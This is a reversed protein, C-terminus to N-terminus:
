HNVRYFTYCLDEPSDHFHVGQIMAFCYDEVSMESNDANFPKGGIERMEDWKEYFWSAAVQRIEEKGNVVVAVGFSDSEPLYEYVKIETYNTM